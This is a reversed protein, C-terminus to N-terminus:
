SAWTKTVMSSVSHVCIETANTTTLYPDDVSVPAERVKIHQNFEDRHFAVTPTPSANRLARQKAKLAHRELQTKVWADGGQFGVIAVDSASM